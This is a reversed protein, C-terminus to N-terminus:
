IGIKAILSIFLKSQYIFQAFFSNNIYNSIASSNSSLAIPSAIVLVFFVIFVGTLLGFVFGLKKNASNLSDSKKIGRNIISSIISILIKVVLFIIIVSIVSLMFNTITQSVTDGINISSPHSLAGKLLPNQAFVEKVRPDQLLEKDFNQPITMNALSDSYGPLKISSLKDNVFDNIKNNLGTTNSLIVALKASFLKACIAAGLYSAFNLFSMVFGKLYGIIGSFLFIAIIVYDIYNM